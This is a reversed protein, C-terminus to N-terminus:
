FLYEICNYIVIVKETVASTTAEECYQLSYDSSNSTSPESGFLNSDESNSTLVVSKCNVLNPLESYPANSTPM